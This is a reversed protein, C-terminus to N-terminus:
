LGKLTSLTAIVRKCKVRKSNDQAEAAGIGGEIDGIFSTASLKVGHSKFDSLTKSIENALAAESETCLTTLGHLAHKVAAVSQGSQQALGRVGSASTKPTGNGCGVAVLAVLCLTAVFVWVERRM